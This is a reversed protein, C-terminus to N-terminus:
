EPAAAGATASASERDYNPGLGLKILSLSDLKGTPEQGNDEQFRRLAEVSSDGWVGNPSGEYYGAKALASQIEAYREPTPRLQRRAVERSQRSSRKRSSSSKTNRTSSSKSSSSKTSSTSHHSASTGATARSRRSSASKKSGTASAAHQAPQSDSSSTSAVISRSKTPTSTQTPSQAARALLPGFAAAWFLGIILGARRGCAALGSRSLVPAIPEAAFRERLGIPQTMKM